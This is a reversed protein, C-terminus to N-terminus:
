IDTTFYISIQAMSSNAWLHQVFIISWVEANYGDNAPNKLIQRVLAYNECDFKASSWLSSQRQQM